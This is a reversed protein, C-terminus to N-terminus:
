WGDDHEMSDADDDSTAWDDDKSDNKSSSAV